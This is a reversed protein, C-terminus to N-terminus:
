KDPTFTCSKALVKHSLLIIYETSTAKGHTLLIMYEAMEAKVQIVGGEADSCTIVGNADGKAAFSNLSTLAFIAVMALQILNKRIM